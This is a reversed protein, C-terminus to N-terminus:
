GYLRAEKTVSTRSPNGFQFAERDDIIIKRDHNDDTIKVLSLRRENNLAQYLSEFSTDQKLTRRSTLLQVTVSPHVLYLWALLEHSCYNDQLRIIGHAKQLLQTVFFKARFSQGSSRVPIKQVLPLSLSNV